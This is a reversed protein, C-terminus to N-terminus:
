VGVNALTMKKGNIFSYMVIAGCSFFLQLNETWREQDPIFVLVTGLSFNHPAKNIMVSYNIVEEVACQM